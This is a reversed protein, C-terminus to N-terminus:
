IGLIISAIFQNFVVGADWKDLLIAHIIKRATVVHPKQTLWNIFLSALSSQREGTALVVVRCDFLDAAKQLSAVRVNHQGAHLTLAARSGVIGHGVIGIAPSTQTM